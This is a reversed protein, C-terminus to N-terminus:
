DILSLHYIFCMESFFCQSIQVKHWRLLQALTRSRLGTTPICPNCPDHPVHRLPQRSCPCRNQTPCLLVESLVSLIMSPTPPSALIKSFGVGWYSFVALVMSPTPRSTCKSCAWHLMSTNWIEANSEFARYEQSWAPHCIVGLAEAYSCPLEDSVKQIRPRCLILSIRHGGQPCRDGQM